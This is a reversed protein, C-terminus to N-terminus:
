FAFLRAENKWVSFNNSIMKKFFVLLNCTPQSSIRVQGEKGFEVGLSKGLDTSSM